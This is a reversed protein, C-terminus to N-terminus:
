VEHKRGIGTNGEKTCLAPLFDNVFLWRVGTKIGQARWDNVTEPFFPIQDRVSLDHAMLVLVADDADLEQIKSVTDMAADHDPFLPGKSVEFFPASPSKLAGQLVDGPCPCRMAAASAAAGDLVGWLAANSPLPLFSSPRLVGAHHCADAGMFVFSAESEDGACTRALGCLHGVAHGPADLLYFSGDGFFDHARFRGIQLGGDFSVERVARGAMDADLVGADAVTPWGPWSAARVGSGVVLEVSSPFRSIDGVHDFHNHSWIVSTIDAPRIGLGAAETDLLSFVDTGPVITTTAEILKVIKPAYNHWDSRVGLDFIVHQDNRSILFCYVPAYLGDWGPTAPQWFLGPKLQLLTKTDLVRVQVTAASEPIHLAPAKKPTEM